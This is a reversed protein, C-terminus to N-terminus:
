KDKVELDWDKGTWSKFKKKAEDRFGDLHRPKGTTLNQGMITDAEVKNTAPDLAGGTYEDYAGLLHGCEHGSVGARNETLYWDKANSREWEQAWVAYVLKDGASDSWQCTVRIRWKGCDADCDKKVLDFNDDWVSHINNLWATKKAEYNTPEPFAEPWVFNDDGTGDNKRKKYEDGDKIFIVNTPSYSGIPRPLNKWAKPSAEKDWFKWQAGSKKIWFWGSRGDGGPSHAPDFNVFKGVWAKKIQLTQEVKVESGQVGIKFAATWGFRGSTRNFSVAEPDKDPVRKVVLPQDTEKTFGGASLKGKVEYQQPPSDGSFDVKVKWPLSFSNQGEGSLDAVKGKGDITGEGAAQTNPDFNKAKGTLKVEDCCWAEEPQWQAEILEKDKLPCPEKSDGVPKDPFNEDADKRAASLAAVAVVAAVAVAAVAVAILGLVM